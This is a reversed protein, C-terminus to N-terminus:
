KLAAPKERMEYAVARIGEASCPPLGGIHPDKESVDAQRYLADIAREIRESLGIVRHGEALVKYGFFAEAHYKWVIATRHLLELRWFLDDYQGPTIFRKAKQLYLMAEQALAIATDKEALVM